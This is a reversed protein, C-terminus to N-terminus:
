AIGGRLADLKDMIITHAKKRSDDNKLHQWKDVWYKGEESNLFIQWIRTDYTISDFYQKQKNKKM